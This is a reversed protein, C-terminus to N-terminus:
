NPMRTFSWKGNDGGRELKVLLRSNFLICIEQFFINKPNCISVVGNNMKELLYKEMDILIDENREHSPIQVSVLLTNRTNKNENKLKYQKSIKNKIQEYIHEFYDELNYSNQDIVKHNVRKLFLILEQQIGFINQTSTPYSIIQDLQKTLESSEKALGERVKKADEQCLEILKSDMCKIQFSEFYNQWLNLRM